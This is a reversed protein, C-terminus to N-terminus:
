PFNVMFFPLLGLSTVFAVRGIYSALPVAQALAFALVLGVVIEALLQLLLHKPFNFQEGDSHYVLLGRPGAAYKEMMKKQAAEKQEKSMQKSEGVGPFLYVGTNKIGSQLAAVVTAEDPIQSLTSEELGLVMHLVAGWIFMAVAAVVGGIIIRKTM